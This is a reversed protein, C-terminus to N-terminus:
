SLSILVGGVREKLTDGEKVKLATTVTSAFIDKRPQM